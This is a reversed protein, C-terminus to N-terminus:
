NESRHIKQYKKKRQAPRAAYHNEMESPREIMEDMEVDEKKEAEDSPDKCWLNYVYFGFGIVVAGCILTPLPGIFEPLFFVLVLLGAMIYLMAPSHFFKNM